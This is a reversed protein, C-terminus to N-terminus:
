MIEMCKDCNGVLGLLTRRVWYEELDEIVLTEEQDLIEMLVLHDLIVKRDQHDKMEKLVMKEQHVLHGRLEEKAVLVQLALKASVITRHSDKQLKKITSAQQVKTFSTCVFIYFM